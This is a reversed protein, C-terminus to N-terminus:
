MEVVFWCFGEVVIDMMLGKKFGFYNKLVMYSVGIKVVFVCLLLGVLGKEEVIELGVEIFVKKLDGYYYKKKKNEMM